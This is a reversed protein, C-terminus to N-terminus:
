NTVIIFFHRSHRSHRFYKSNSDIHLDKAKANKVKLELRRKVKPV